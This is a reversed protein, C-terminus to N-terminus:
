RGELEVTMSWRGYATLMGSAAFRRPELRRLEAEIPMMENHAMSLLVRPAAAPQEGPPFALVAAFRAGREVVLQASVPLDGHGSLLTIPVGPRAVPVPERILIPIAALTGVILVLGLLCAIAIARPNM